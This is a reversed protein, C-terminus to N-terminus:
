ESLIMMIRVGVSGWGGEFARVTELVSSSVGDHICAATAGLSSATELCPIFWNKSTQRPLSPLSPCIRHFACRILKELWPVAVNFAAGLNTIASLFWVGNYYTPEHVTCLSHLLCFVHDAPVRSGLKAAKGVIHIAWWRERRKTSHSSFPTTPSVQKTPSGQIKRRTRNPSYQFHKNQFAFYKNTRGWFIKNRKKPYELVRGYEVAVSGQSTGSDMSWGYDGM